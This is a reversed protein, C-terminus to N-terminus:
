KAEKRSIINISIKYQLDFIPLYIIMFLYFNHFNRYNSCTIQKNDPVQKASVPTLTGQSEIAVTPPPVLIPSL